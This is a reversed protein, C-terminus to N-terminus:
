CRSALKMCEFPSSCWDSFTFQGGVKIKVWHWSRAKIIDFTSLVDVQQEFIISNRHLWISWLTTFWVVMWVKKLKKGRVLGHHNVFHLKAEFPLAVQFGLWAYYKNWIHFDFVGFPVM